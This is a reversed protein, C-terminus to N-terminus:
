QHLNAMAGFYQRARTEESLKFYCTTTEFREHGMLDKLVMADINANALQTAFTHRLQHVHFRKLGLRACWTELVEQIARRSIRQRRESLFLAPDDDSRSEMYARIAVVTLDDFYFQREKSGKGIVRGTGWIKTTGDAMDEAVEEITEVNLQHLESLRLGSAAFLSVIARDRLDTIGNLLTNLSVPDIAQSTNGLKKPKRSRRMVIQTPNKLKPNSTARLFDFFGSVAAIRRNITAAALGVRDSQPNPKTKMEAIYECIITPSAQTVRLKRSKMFIEFFKLDSRYAAVTHPSWDNAELQRLYLEYDM